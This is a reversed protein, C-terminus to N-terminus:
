SQRYADCITMFVEARFIEVKPQLEFKHCIVLPRNDFRYYIIVLKSALRRFVRWVWCFQFSFGDFKFPGAPLFGAPRKTKPFSFEMVLLFIDNNANTHWDYPFLLSLALHYKVAGM